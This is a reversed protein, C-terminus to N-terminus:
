VEVPMTLKALSQIQAPDSVVEPNGLEATVEIFRKEVAELKQELNSM